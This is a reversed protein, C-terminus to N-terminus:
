ESVRLPCQVDYRLQLEIKYYENLERRKSVVERECMERGNFPKMLM